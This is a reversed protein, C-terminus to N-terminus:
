GNSSGGGCGAVADVASASAFFSCVSCIKDVVAVAEGTSGSEVECSPASCEYEELDPLDQCIQTKFNKENNRLM